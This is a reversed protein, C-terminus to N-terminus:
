FKVYDKTKPPVKVFTPLYGFIEILDWNGLSYLIFKKVM